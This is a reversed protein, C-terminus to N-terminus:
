TTTLARKYQSWSLILRCSAALEQEKCIHRPQDARTDVASLCVVNLGAPCGQCAKIRLGYSQRRETRRFAALQQMPYAVMSVSGALM